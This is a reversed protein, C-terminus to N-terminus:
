GAPLGADWPFWKETPAGFDPAASVADIESDLGTKM